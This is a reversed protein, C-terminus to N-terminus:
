RKQQAAKQQSQEALIEARIEAKLKERAQLDRAEREEQAQIKAQEAQARIAVSEDKWISGDPRYWVGSGPPREMRQGHEQDVVMRYPDERVIKGAANRYETQYNFAM